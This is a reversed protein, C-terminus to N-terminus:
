DNGIKIVFYPMSHFVGGKEGIKQSKRESIPSGSPARPSFLALGIGSCAKKFGM